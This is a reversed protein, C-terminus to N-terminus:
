CRVSLHASLHPTPTPHCRCAAAVVPRPLSSGPRPVTSTAQRLTQGPLELPRSQALRVTRLGGHGAWPQEPSVSAPEVDWSLSSGADMPIHDANSGPSGPLMSAALGVPRPSGSAQSGPSPQGPCSPETQAPHPQTFLWGSPPNTTGSRGGEHALTM